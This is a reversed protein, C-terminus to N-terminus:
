KIKRARGAERGNSQLVLQTVAGTEDKVFSITFPLVTTFFSTESEPLLEIPGPNSSTEFMLKDGDRSITVTINPAPQYQGIYAEFVRPDVKVPTRQPIAPKATALNPIYSEAIARAITGPDASDTNTLVVITLRDDVFRQLTARFGPLTGTHLVRRHGAVEDVQFGFGYPYTAGSNLTVPTWMQDRTAATLVRGDNLAADWKALDLVTSLFAGSPRLALITAANQLRGDRVTYGDARNPVIEIPTTTRTVTMGLPQFLRRRLFADWAEGSAVHIIEALASYGTNSYEWKEGPTFLLPMAYASRLIDVDSQMRFPDFGPAENILGSTHTLLHRVTIANWTPPADTLFRGIRDGLGIKGDQVLLMIGAAILQKSVSAIQFVTDPTAKTGTEVNAMGYGAAKIVVGDRIVAVVAGQLRQRQLEGNVLDDVSDAVASAAVAVVMGFAIVASATLSKSSMMNM